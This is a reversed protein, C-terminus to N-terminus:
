AEPRRKVGSSIRKLSDLKRQMFRDATDSSIRGALLKARRAIENGVKEYTGRFLERAPTGLIVEYGCLMPLSPQRVVREYRSVAARDESGLLFAVEQQTLGTRKRYTRLYNDLHRAM